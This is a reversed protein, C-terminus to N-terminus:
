RSGTPAWWVPRVPGVLRRPPDGAWDPDDGQIQDYIDLQRAIGDLSLFEGFHLLWGGAEAGDHLAYSARVDAPLKVGVREELAVVAAAKAGLALRLFGPRVHRHHWATIRHWSDALGM